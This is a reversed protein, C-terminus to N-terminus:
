TFVRNEEKDNNSLDVGNLRNNKPFRGRYGPKLFEFDPIKSIDSFNTKKLREILAENGADFLADVRKIIKNFGDTNQEYGLSLVIDSPISLFYSKLTIKWDDAVGVGSASVLFKRLNNLSCLMHLHTAEIPRSHLSSPNKIHITFSGSFDDNM